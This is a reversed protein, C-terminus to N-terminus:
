NRQVACGAAIVSLFGKKENRYFEAFASVVINGADLQYLEPINEQYFKIRRLDRIGIGTMKKQTEHKQGSGIVSGELIELFYDALEYTCKPSALERARVFDEYATAHLVEQLPSKGAEFGQLIKILGRYCLAAKDSPSLDLIRSFCDSALLYEDRRNRGASTVAKALHAEGWARWTNVFDPECKVSKKAYELAEKLSSEMEITKGARYTALLSYKAMESLALSNSPDGALAMSLREVARDLLERQIEHNVDLHESFDRLYMGLQANLTPDDRFFENTKKLLEKIYESRKALPSATAIGQLRKLELYRACQVTESDRKSKIRKLCDKADAHHDDGWNKIQRLYMDYEILAFQSGYESYLVGPRRLIRAIEGFYDPSKEDDCSSKDYYTLYLYTVSLFLEQLNYYESPPNCSALLHNAISLKSLKEHEQSISYFDYFTAIGELLKQVDPDEQFVKSRRCQIAIDVFKQIMTSDINPSFFTFDDQIMSKVNRLVDEYSRIQEYSRYIEGHTKQTGAVMSDLQRNLSRIHTINKEITDRMDNIEKVQKEIEQYKERSEYSRFFSDCLLVTTLVTLITVAVDLPARMRFLKNCRPKLSKACWGIFKGM